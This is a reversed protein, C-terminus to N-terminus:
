EELSSADNLKTAVTVMWMSKAAWSFSIQCNGCKLSLCIHLYYDTMDSEKPGQPSYGTLSTQGHFERPLFGPTYMAM